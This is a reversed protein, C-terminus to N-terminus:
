RFIAKTLFVKVQNFFILCVKESIKAAEDEVDDGERTEVAPCKAEDAKEGEGEATTEMGEREAEGEVEKKDGEEAKRGGREERSDPHIEEEEEEEETLPVPELPPTTLRPSPIPLDPSSWSRRSATVNQSWGPLKHRSVSPTLTHPLSQHPQTHTCSM